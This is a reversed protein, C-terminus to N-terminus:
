ASSVGCPLRRASRAFNPNDSEVIAVGIQPLLSVIRGGASQVKSVLQTNFNNSNATVVYTAAQASGAFVFTGIVLGIAQALKQM